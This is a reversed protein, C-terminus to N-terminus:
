FGHEKQLASQAQTERSNDTSEPKPKDLKDWINTIQEQMKVVHPDKQPFKIFRCVVLSLITIIFFSLLEM